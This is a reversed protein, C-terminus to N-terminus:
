PPDCDRLGPLPSIGALPAAGEAALWPPPPLLLSRQHLFYPAITLAKDPTGNRARGRLGWATGRPSWGQATPSHLHPLHKGKAILGSRVLRRMRKLGRGRAFRRGWRPARPALGAEGWAGPPQDAVRWCRAGLQSTFKLSAGGPPCAAGSLAVSPAADGAPRGRGVAPLQCAEPALDPLKEVRGRARPSCAPARQETVPLGRLSCCAM